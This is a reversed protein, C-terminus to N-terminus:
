RSGGTVDYLHWVIGEPTRPCTGVYRACAPLPHGTGFVQFQRPTKPAGYTFEAWFDVEELTAGNAVAVPYGTLDFTWPKDDVPVTYRFMQRVAGDPDAEASPTNGAKPYTMENEATGTNVDDALTYTEAFEAGGILYRDAGIVDPRDPLYEAAFLCDPGQNQEEGWPALITVDEGTPNPFARVMGKALWLDGALPDYRRSVQEWGGMPVYQEGGPNTVAPEGGTCTVTTETRGDAMVTAVVEGPTATRIRVVASKRYVPAKAFRATFEEASLDLKM